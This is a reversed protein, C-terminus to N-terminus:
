RATGLPTVADNPRPGDGGAIRRAGGLRGTICEHIALLSPVLLLVLVTSFALGFSISVAMPILFQAQLSTEFLLPTLGAITTLSTLLVARLRLCASEVIARRTEVGAERLHKYFTVLVISDNVVIGSLGFMGFLSLITVDIGLLWHGALAGVLGFPIASMVVLPWGYSAFVWALVLYIMALAFVGGRRMDALTEEQDASRGEFGYDVGFRRNLLPLTSERLRTLVSNSTTVAADVDASVQVSLKGNTRRLIQFGRRSRIDVVSPLPVTKGDPLLIGFADLSSLSNRESDPLVVRVEVEDQGDQFIQAIRGDYAARLQRGVSEVTLGLAEGLPTLKYILQEPGFPLDDEVASVGPITELTQRLALAAEKLRGADSGHLRIDVDRGPPGPRREFISFSEIGAPLTIADEWAKIFQLNRVHRADPEVLEVMISGFQDGRRVNHEDVTLASGLRVVATDVLKEGFSQETQALAEDAQELFATVREPPTGAVFGVNARIITGEPSPFFNFSLRGGVLLGITLLLLSLAISVVTAPDTVAWTAVPRFLSERFRIFGGELSRRLRGSDRHHARQFSHRLHGPLIMFAEVLSAAIVCVVVVPIDFLINGIIGSVLMLPLFAAITTLSSSIVPALMRRAGGEAAQLPEEGAEYHTLADEGVVIADDVIIGLTMIMAFLSIMNISGGVAYLVGLTAMFSVPIGAAVWFAVRGNMFLFLILVVLVLGGAGNKLLLDIRQQIFRWSQDFIVLEVGPPLGPKTEEYWRQLIRAAELSDKNEARRVDLEVTPKGHFLVRTEGSRARRQITAVDGLRLLRGTDDSRLALREFELVTRDQELARLQRSVDNRGITGAPLDRSLEAVRTAINDLSMDLERLRETPVQIAIEEDPLGTIGISAIGRDLLEREMEHVLARLDGLEYDTSVLLRAVPERRVIKSIEPDESSAPLNRILGVREKVQDLAVGMDTGEEYELTISSVGEASTSSMKRLGDVARLEREIPVTIASEVDEASAGTWVVRVTVFDLAFNPFFQTNLRTLAWAGALVMMVMLLNAAVKHRAFVGLLDDEHKAGRALRIEAPASHRHQQM